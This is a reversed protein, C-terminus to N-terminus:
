SHVTNSTLLIFYSRTKTLLIFLYMAVKTVMIYGVGDPKLNLISLDVTHITYTFKHMKSNQVRHLRLM